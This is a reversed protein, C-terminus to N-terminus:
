KKNAWIALVALLLAVGGFAAVWYLKIWTVGLITWTTAKETGDPAISTLSGDAYQCMLNDAKKWIKTKKKGGMSPSVATAYQAQTITGNKLMTQAVVAVTAPTKRPEEFGGMVVVVEEEETNVSMTGDDPPVDDAVEVPAATPNEELPPQDDIPEFYNEAVNDIAMGDAGFRQKRHKTKIPNM